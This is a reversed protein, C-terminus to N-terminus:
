TAPQYRTAIDRALERVAQEDQPPSCRAANEVLLAAEIAQASAGVRRMGGALRLLHRHRGGEGIPGTTAFSVSRNQRARSYFLDLLELPLEAFATQWPARGQAFRYFRGSSHRAPPAVFYGDRSVELGSAGFEVKAVDPAGAPRRYYLHWGAGTRVIVTDPLTNEGVTRRFLEAGEPGDIDIGVLGSAGLVIVPNRRGGAARQILAAGHDADALRPTAPWGRRTVRKADDGTAGDTFALALRHEGYARGCSTLMEEVTM